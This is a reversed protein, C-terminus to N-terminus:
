LVKPIGRMRWTTCMSGAWGRWAGYSRALFRMLDAEQIFEAKRQRLFLFPCFGRLLYGLTFGTLSGSIGSVYVKETSTFDVAYDDGAYPDHLARLM